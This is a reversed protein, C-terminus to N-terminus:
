SNKVIIKKIFDGGVTAVQNLSNIMAFNKGYLNVASKSNGGTIIAYVECGFKKLKALEEKTDDAATKGDYSVRFYKNKYLPCMDQPEADTLVITIHNSPSIDSLFFKYARFALGDRNWGSAFYSFIRETSVPETFDKLVTFVTYNSLSAFSIVRVPLSAAELSKAFIYAQVAIDEQHDMRSASADLLLDATFGGGDFYYKKQFIKPYPNLKSKWAIKGILQGYRSNYLEYASSQSLVSLLKKTLLKISSTYLNKHSLFKSLNKKYQLKQMAYHKNSSNRTFGRTVLVATNKHKDKCFNNIRIENDISLSSSGFIDMIKERKAKKSALIINQLFNLKKTKINMIDNSKISYELSIGAASKLGKAIDIAPLKANLHFSATKYSFYRSLTELFSNKFNEFDTNAEYNLANYAAATKQSFFKPKSGLILKARYEYLSYVLPYKRAFNRRQLEYDDRLFNKAYLLRLQELHPRRSIEKKYVLNELAFWFVQDYKERNSSSEWISYISALRKPGFYKYALGIVISMYIDPSGAIDIGTFDPEFSYDYSGNYVM